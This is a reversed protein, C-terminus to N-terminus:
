GSVGALWVAIEGLVRAAARDMAKAAGEADYSAVPVRVRFTRHALLRGDTRQVLDAEIALVATGPKASADHYFDVLRTDLQYQGTVGTALLAVTHFAGAQRLRQELLWTLRQAPPETWQAFAYHARTGPQRSYALAPVQYFAPAEMEGLLLVGPHGHPLRQIAGEDALVYDTVPQRAGSLVTCGALLLALFPLLLKKM